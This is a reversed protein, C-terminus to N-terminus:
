FCADCSCHPKSGSCCMESPVHRPAIIDYPKKGVSVAEYFVKCEPCMPSCMGEHEWRTLIERPTELGEGRRPATM